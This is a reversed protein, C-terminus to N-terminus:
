LLTFSKFPDNPLVETREESTINLSKSENLDKEAEQDKDTRM